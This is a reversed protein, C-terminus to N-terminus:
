LVEAKSFLVDDLWHYYHSVWVGKTENFQRKSISIEKFHITFADLKDCVRQKVGDSLAKGELLVVQIVIQSDGRIYSIDLIDSDADILFANILAYKLSIYEQDLKM